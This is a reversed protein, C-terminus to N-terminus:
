FRLISFFRKNPNSNYCYQFFNDCSFQAEDELEKQCGRAATFAQLAGNFSRGWYTVGGLCRGGFGCSREREV